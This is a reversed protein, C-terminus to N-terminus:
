PKRESAADPFVRIWHDAMAIGRMVERPPMHCRICGEQSNVPCIKGKPKVHCDRCVREYHTDDRLADRHPDHCTLCSLRKGGQLYCASKMLGYPQFRQTLRLESASVPDIDSEARHCQACVDNLKAASVKRLRLLELAHRGQKMSEAHARGPGHCAECGVGFFRESAAQESEGIISTHCGFCARAKEKTLTKGTGPADAIQGPTVVWRKRSPFYSMRLEEWHDGSRSVFTLGTSGSGFACDLRRRETGSRTTVALEYGDNASHLSYRADTVGDVFSGAPLVLAQHNVRRLTIAHRSALHQKMVAPHCRACSENGVYNRLESQAVARSRPYRRATAVPAEEQRLLWWGLAGLLLIFAVCAVVARRASM